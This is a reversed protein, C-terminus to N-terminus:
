VHSAEYHSHQTDCGNCVQAVFGDGGWGEIVRVNMSFLFCLVFMGHLTKSPGM